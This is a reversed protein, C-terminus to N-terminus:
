LKPLGGNNPRLLSGTPHIGLSEITMIPWKKSINGECANYSIGRFKLNIITRSPEREIFDLFHRNETESFGYDNSRNDEYSRYIKRAEKKARFWMCLAHTCAHISTHSRKSAKWLILNKRPDCFPTNM